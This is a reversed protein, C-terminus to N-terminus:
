QLNRGIVVNLLPRGKLYRDLNELFLASLADNEAAFRGGSHPTILLNNASWLPSSAPLPETSFVDLAAGAIRKENLAELLAAEDVVCGRALNHLYATPRMKKLSEANILPPDNADAAVTLVIHDAQTLANDLEPLPYIRDVHPTDRPTRNAAIVKMGLAKALTALEQGIAGLGVVLLTQGKALAYRSARCWVADRQHAWHQPLNRNFALIYALAHEAVARAVVGRANALQFQQRALLAPTCYQDYGSSPLQHFRIRSQALAAPDPWGFVVDAHDLLGKWDDPHEEVYRIEAGPAMARLCDRGAQSLGDFGIVITHSPQTM